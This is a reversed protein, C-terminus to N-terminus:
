TRRLPLLLHELADVISDPIAFDLTAVHLAAAEAASLQDPPLKVADKETMVVCPSDAPWPRPTLRAHDPLACREVEMGAQELMVFFRDPHGIGAVALVRRGHWAELGQMAPAGQWWAVLPQIGALRRRACPGPLPTSPRAANYLLVTRPPLDRPLPERLPGAPLQLGNGAGRDDLVVLQADRALALHQLGDDSILVDVEPHHACLAQAAAVRQSCVWVPLGTRLAMLFPEDGTEAAASDARIQLPNAADSRQGGYGRSVIGPHWGRRQLAQAVAMVTPTKGAGGVVWNGVVLVPVPAKWPRRWGWRWPGQVAWRVLAYVRSVPWLLLSVASLRPRWWARQLADRLAM